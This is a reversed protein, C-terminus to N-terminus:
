MLFSYSFGASFCVVKDHAYLSKFCICNNYLFFYYNGKKLVYRSPMKYLARQFLLIRLEELIGTFFSNIGATFYVVTHPPTLFAALQILQQQHWTGSDLLQRM